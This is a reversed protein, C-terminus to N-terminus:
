TWLLEAQTRPCSIATTHTHTPPSHEVVKSDRAKSLPLVTVLFNIRATAIKGAVTWMLDESIDLSGPHHAYERAMTPSVFPFIDLPM